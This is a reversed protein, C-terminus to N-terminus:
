IQIKMQVKWCINKIRVVAIGVLVFALIPLPLSSRIESHLSTGLILYYFVTVM